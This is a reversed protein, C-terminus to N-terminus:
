EVKGKELDLVRNIHKEFGAATDKGFTVRLWSRLKKLAWEIGAYREKFRKVGGVYGQGGCSAKCSALFLEGDRELIVLARSDAEDWVTLSEQGSSRTASEQKAKAEEEAKAEREAQREFDLNTQFDSQTMDETHALEGTDTRFYDKKGQKPRFVVRCEVPRMEFGAQLNGALSAVQAASEDLKAKYSSKIQNAELTLTNQDSLQKVLKESIAEREERSFTHKIHKVEKIEKM